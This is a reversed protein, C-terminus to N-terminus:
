LDAKWHPSFITWNYHVLIFWKHKRLFVPIIRKFFCEPFKPPTLRNATFVKTNKTKRLTIIDKNIATFVRQGLKIINPTSTNRSRETCATVTLNYIDGPPLPLSARMVNRTVQCLVVHLCCTFWMYIVSSCRACLWDQTGGEEMQYPWIRSQRQGVRLQQFILLAPIKRFYRKLRGQIFSFIDRCYIRVATQTEM